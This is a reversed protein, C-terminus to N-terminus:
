KKYILFAYIIGFMFYGFTIYLPLDPNIQMLKYEFMYQNHTDTMLWMILPILYPVFLLIKRESGNEKFGRGVFSCSEWIAAIVAFIALGIILSAIAYLM